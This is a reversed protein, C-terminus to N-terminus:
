RAGDMSGRGSIRGAASTNVRRGVQMARHLARDLDEALVATQVAAADAQARVVVVSGDPIRDLRERMLHRLRRRVANRNVASGVARSVVIGVRVPPGTRRPDTLLHVVVRATGGRAGLRTARQHDRTLRLRNQPPLM